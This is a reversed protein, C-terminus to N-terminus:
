GKVTEEEIKPESTDKAKSVKFIKADNGFRTPATGKYEIKVLSGVEVVSMRDDLVTSGWVMWTGTENEIYYANSDNVGIKTKKSVLKGEIQDGEKMPKWVQPEVTEWKPNTNEM